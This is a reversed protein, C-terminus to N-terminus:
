KGGRAEMQRQYDCVAKIRNITEAYAPEAPVQSLERLGEPCRKNNVLLTSLHLRIAHNQPSKTLAARFEAEARATDGHKLRTQGLYTLVEPTPDIAKAKEFESAADAPRDRNLYIVGLRFHSQFLMYKAEDKDDASGNQMMPEALQVAAMLEGIAEDYKKNMTLLSGLNFHTHPRDPSLQVAERTPALADELRGAKRLVDGLHYYADAATYRPQPDIPKLKTARTFAAAAEEWHRLAEHAVGLNYQAEFMTPREAALPTLMDVAAAHQARQILVAGLEARAKPTEPKVSKPDLKIGERFDMEAEQMRGMKQYCSGRMYYPDPELPFRQVADTFAQLAEEMKGLAMRNSGLELIALIVKSGPVIDKPAAEGHYEKGRGKPTWKKAPGKAPPKAAAPKAGAAPPAAGQAAADPAVTTIWLSLVTGLGAWALRRLTGRQVRPSAGQTLAQPCLPNMYRSRSSILLVQMAMTLVRVAVSFVTVILSSRCCAM